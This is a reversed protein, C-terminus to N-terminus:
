ALLESRQRSCLVAYLISARSSNLSSFYLCAIIVSCCNRWFYFKCMDSILVDSNRIAMQVVFSSVRYLAIVNKYQRKYTVRVNVYM